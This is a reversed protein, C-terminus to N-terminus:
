PMIRTMEAEVRFGGHDGGEGGVIGKEMGDSNGLETVIDNTPLSTSPASPPSARAASM